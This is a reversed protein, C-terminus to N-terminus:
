PESQSSLVVLASIHSDGPVPHLFLRNGPAAGYVRERFSPACRQCSVDPSNGPDNFRVAVPEHDAKQYWWQLVLVGLSDNHGAAYISNGKNGHGAPGRGTFFLLIHNKKGKARNDKGARSRYGRARQGDAEM